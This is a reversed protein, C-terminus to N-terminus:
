RGNSLVKPTLEVPAPKLQPAASGHTVCARARESAREGAAAAAPSCLAGVARL